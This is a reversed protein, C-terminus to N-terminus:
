VGRMKLDLIYVLDWEKRLRQLKLGGFKAERAELLESGNERSCYERRQASMDKDVEFEYLRRTVLPFLDAAITMVRGGSITVQTLIDIGSSASTNITKSECGRGSCGSPGPYM